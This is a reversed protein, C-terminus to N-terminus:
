TGPEHNPERDGDTRTITPQVDLGKPLEFWERAVTERFDRNIHKALDMYDLIFKAYSVKSREYDEKIHEPIRTTHQRLINRTREIPECVCLKDYTGLLSGFWGVFVPFTGANQPMKQAANKFARLIDQLHYVSYGVIDHFAPQANQLENLAHLISNSRNPDFLEELEDAFWLLRDFHEKALRNKRIAETTRRIRTRVHEGLIGYGNVIVIMVFLVVVVVLVLLPPFYDRAAIMGLLIATLAGIIGAVAVIRKETQKSETM